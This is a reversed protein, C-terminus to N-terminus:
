QILELACAKALKKNPADTGPMTAWGTGVLIESRKYSTADKMEAILGTALPDANANSVCIPVLAAMLQEQAQDAAMVQAKPATVWGGWSFGVIALAVAGFGAGFTAPKLWTPLQM